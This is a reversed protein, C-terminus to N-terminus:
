IEIYEEREFGIYENIILLMIVKCKGKTFLKHKEKIKEIIYKREDNFFVDEKFASMEFFAYTFM